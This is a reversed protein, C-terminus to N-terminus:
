GLIGAPKLYHTEGSSTSQFHGAAWTNYKGASASWRVLWGFSNASSASSPRTVENVEVRMNM